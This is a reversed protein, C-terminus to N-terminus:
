LRPDIEESELALIGFVSEHVQRLPERRIFRELAEVSLAFERLALSQKRSLGRKKLRELNAPSDYDAGYIIRLYESGRCKMAPQILESKDYPIFDAPKVVMGEGGQRTLELWWDVAETCSQADKLDVMQYRTMRFIDPDTACIEAIQELHWLHPKDTHAQAETALIHFPALKLDTLSRVEWCYNQYSRVYKQIATRQQSFKQLLAEVGAINRTQAQELITQVKPLALQAAAGVSAYQEKILSQAKASWPLLEADLCVWTTQFKEWFNSKTLAQALRELFAKELSADTFFNRGTRTYCVGLGQGSIGFRELAAAEDKCIVVVARSGMHKEECVLQEIGKSRYYDLAEQPHELFGALPSTACPSMTPPLYILWKPNVAFRSMVELAAISNEELIGINARLRSQIVRKGLVQEIDLVGDAAQQASLQTDVVAQIPRIPEYYVKRAPVSVLQMEPYRLATLKGGFVCGTDIDITHNLWQPEPVPTHGYVIKAKGKYEKAWNYRVPLGFEDIEGTTEGYMAFARVAGSARGHMEERLGAHAVVLDGKNFVYHSVLGYLFAEALKKFEATEQALEQVTQELGHQLQVSQGKLYKQLKSDHNGCVCYAQGAAVMTMVLKLVGVSNNGRDVLDGVFVAKRGIPNQVVFWQNPAPNPNVAVSYGLSALLDLLEDMCGHVDGIIDLPATESKKDNYLKDREIREIAAVEQESNLTHVHRFGEARLWRLNQKLQLRQQRIIHLYQHRNPRAHNRRECVSEPLNLVIAVALCHYEKALALLKQRSEKQVNTADIVTLLGNKLRKAAMYFLLDFADNTATQDNEDDSVWARCADSSLIETPKFYKQAFSSKGAGSVGVLVVLSFEPVNLIM